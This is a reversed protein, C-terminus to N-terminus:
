DCSHNGIDKEATAVVATSPVVATSAVAATSAAEAMPDVGLARTGALPFAEPIEATISDVSRAPTREPSRMLLCLVTSDQIEAEPDAEMFHMATTLIAATTISITTISIIAISSPAAIPSTPTTTTFLATATGIMVGTIGAGDLGVSFALGFDGESSSQHGAMFFEPYPCGVQTPSSLIETASGRITPPCTCLM